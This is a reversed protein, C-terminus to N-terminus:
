RRLVVSAHRCYRGRGRTVGVFTVVPASQVWDGAPPAQRNTASRRKVRAGGSRREGVCRRVVPNRGEGVPRIPRRSHLPLVAGSLRSHPALSSDDDIREDAARCLDSHPGAGVDRGACGGRRPGRIRGYEMPAHAPTRARRVPRHAGRAPSRRHRGRHRGVRRESRLAGSAEGRRLAGRLLRWAGPRRQIAVLAPLPIALTADRISPVLAFLAVLAAAPAAVALGLAPTGLRDPGLLGTAGLAVVLAFWAALAVAVTLRGRPTEALAHSLFAVVAAASATTEITSLTDFM